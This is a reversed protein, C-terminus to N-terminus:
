SLLSKKNNHQFKQKPENNTFDHKGRSFDWKRWMNAIYFVM